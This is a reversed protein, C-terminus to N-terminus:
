GVGDKGCEAQRGAYRLPATAQVRTGGGPAPGITLTGGVLALRERMATIGVGQGPGPQPALAMGCGNDSISLTVHDTGVMALLMHLQGANAHKGVNSLAEQAVRYLTVELPRPLRDGGITCDFHKEKVALQALRTRLAAELGLDDLEPPRLDAIAHRVDSISRRAIEVARELMPRVPHDTAVRTEAAQLHFLLSALTQAVGDHLDYAVRAREGEQAHILAAVLQALEQERAALDRTLAAAKRSQRRKALFDALHSLVVRVVGVDETPPPGHRLWMQLRLQGQGEPGHQIDLNAADTPPAGPYQWFTEDGADLRAQDTVAFGALLSLVQRVPEPGDTGSDIDLRDRIEVILRLRAAKAEADRYLRRLEVIPSNALPDM